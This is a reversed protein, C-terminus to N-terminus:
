MASALALAAFSAVLKTAGCSIAITYPSDDAEEEGAATCDEASMCMSLPMLAQMIEDAAEDYDAHEADTSEISTTACIEEEGCDEASECGLDALGADGEAADADADVAAADGDAAAADGEVVAADGDAAEGEAAEGEVAEGEAAAVEEDAAVVALLALIFKM